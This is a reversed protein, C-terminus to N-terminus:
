LDEDEFGTVLAHDALVEDPDNLFDVEMVDIVTPKFGAMGIAPAQMMEPASKHGHMVKRTRRSRAAPAHRVAVKRRRGTHEPM